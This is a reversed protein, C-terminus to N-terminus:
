KLSNYEEKNFGLLVKNGAIVIPRKIITPYDLMLQYKEDDNPKIINLDKLTRSKQNFIKDLGVIQALKQLEEKTFPTKKYDIFTYPIALSDLYNLANRVTICNKIGYVKM